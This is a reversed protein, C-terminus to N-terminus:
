DEVRALRRHDLEMEEAAETVLLGGFGEADRRGGHIALQAQGLRPQSDFQGAGRHGSMVPSRQARTCSSNSAAMGSGAASRGACTRAAASSASIAVSTSDISSALSLSVPSISRATPSAM